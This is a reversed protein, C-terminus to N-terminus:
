AALIQNQKETKCRKLEGENIDFKKYSSFFQSDYLNIVEYVSDIKFTVRGLINKGIDNIGCDELDKDFQEQTINDFYENILDIDRNFMEEKDM